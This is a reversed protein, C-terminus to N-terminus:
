HITMIGWAHMASANLLRIKDIHMPSIHIRSTEIFLEHALWWSSYSLVIFDTRSEYNRNQIAYFSKFTFLKAENFHLGNLFVLKNSIKNDKHAQDLWGVSKMSECIYVNYLRIILM